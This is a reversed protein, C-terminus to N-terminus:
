RYRTYLVACVQIPEKIKFLPILQPLITTTYEKDTAQEAMLLLSPLVFPIMDANVCEKMLSPM